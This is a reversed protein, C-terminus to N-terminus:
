LVAAKGADLWRGVAIPWEKPKWYRSVAAAAAEDAAEGLYIGGQLGRCMVM